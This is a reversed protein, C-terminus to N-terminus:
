HASKLIDIFDAITLEVANKRSSSAGASHHALDDFADAELGFDSLRQLGQADTWAELGSYADGGPLPAFVEAVLAACAELRLQTDSGMAARATNQRMVPVLFRGCLAGHSMDYRGGLVSALGHAAGLGSNALAVGSTLSVWALDRWAQAAGGEMVDRLARLGLAINPQTLADSFPTAANSTYAEITQVVADLGSALVTKRPASPLLAPDVLAVQPVLARGRLSVKAAKSPVGLVANFTVEAGTGATTPIAICPIPGPAALLAQPIKSFDDSLRLSHGLCFAFAKGSDIVAGGGCAIVAEITEPALRELAANISPVTPEVPCPVEVVRLGHDRLQQLVGGSAVGSAGRLLAVCTAGEPLVDTVTASIGEGFRVDTPISFSFPSPPVTM